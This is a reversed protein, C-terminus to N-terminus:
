TWERRFLPAAAYGAGFAALIFLWAGVSLVAGGSLALGSTCGRALKAGFAMVLGGGFAYRLRAGAEIRPGREVIRRYRGAALASAAGGVAVGAIELVLWDRFLSTLGHPLYASYPLSGGAHDPAVAAAGTAVLTSFAGSAGLGHGLVVFTVLLMLGIGVGALYPNLYARAARGVAPDAASTTALPQVQTAM